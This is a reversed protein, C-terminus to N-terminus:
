HEPCAFHLDIRVFQLPRLTDIGSSGCCQKRQRIYDLASLCVSCAPGKCTNLAHGSRDREVVLRVARRIEFCGSVRRPLRMVMPGM